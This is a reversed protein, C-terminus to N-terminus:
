TIIARYKLISVFLVGGIINGITAMFQVRVYDIITIHDSTLMGAFIETSGVICHHLSGLGIASTILFIILIRGTSDQVSTALWSLLGMLWGALIGSGVITLSGYSVFHSAIKTFVEYNIIGYSTTTQILIFAMLYGGLLNGGYIIGWIKLLQPLTKDKNLVPLVALTTHETFLASKGMVVFIFGLPYAFSTIIHLAEPSYTKHLLTHLVGILYLSFGLELGAAIASFFLSSNTRNYERLGESIQEEYIRELSKTQITSIEIEKNTDPNIKKRM